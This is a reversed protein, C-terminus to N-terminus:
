EDSSSEIEYKLLDKLYDREDETIELDDLEDISVIASLEDLEETSLTDMNDLKALQLQIDKENYGYYTMEWLSHCIIEKASYNLITEPHISMQLWRGWPTFSLNWDTSGEKGCLHHYDLEEENDLVHTIHIQCDNLTHGTHEDYDNLPHNSRNKLDEYMSEYGKVHRTFKDEYCETLLERLDDFSYEDILENLTIEM